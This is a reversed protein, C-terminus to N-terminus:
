PQNELVLVHQGYQQGALYQVGRDLTVLVGNGRIALGLLYADTIQKPGFIRRSFPATVSGWSDSIPWFSYGPHAELSALIEAAEGVTLNGFKPNSSIRLFGSESFACMSWNRGPVEFWKTVIRHHGHDSHTLAILVNVDLLYRAETL